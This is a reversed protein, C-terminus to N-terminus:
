EMNSISKIEATPNSCKILSLYFLESDVEIHRKLTTLIKTGLKTSPIERGSLIKSLHGPSLDIEKAFSRQSFKSNKFKRTRLYHSLIAKYYDMSDVQNIETNKV